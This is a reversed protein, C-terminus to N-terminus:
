DDGDGPTPDTEINMGDRVTVLCTRVTPKGDVTALCDFCVGIGCFLGRSTGERRTTRWGAREGEAMLAAAVTRHASVEFERGDVRLTVTGEPRTRPIAPMSARDSSASNM